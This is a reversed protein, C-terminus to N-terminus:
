AGEDLGLVYPAHSGVPRELYFSADVVAVDPTAVQQHLLPVAPADCRGRACAAECPVNGTVPRNGRAVRCVSVFCTFFFLSSFLLM